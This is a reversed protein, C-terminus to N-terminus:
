SDFATLYVIKSRCDTLALNQSFLTYLAHWLTHYRVTAHSLTGTDSRALDYLLTQYRALAYDYQYRVTSQMTCLTSLDLDHVDDTHRHLFDSHHM